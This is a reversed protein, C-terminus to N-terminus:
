VKCIESSKLEVKWFFFFRKLTVKPNPHFTSFKLEFDSIQPTKGRPLRTCIFVLNPLLMKYVVKVRPRTVALAMNTSSINAFPRSCFCLRHSSKASSKMQSSKRKWNCLEGLLVYSRKPLRHLTPM